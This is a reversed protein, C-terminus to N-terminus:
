GASTRVPYDPLTIADAKTFQKALLQKMPWHLMMRMSAERLAIMLGSQPAFGKV